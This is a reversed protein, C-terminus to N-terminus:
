TIQIKNKYHKQTHPKQEHLIILVIAKLMNLDGAVAASNALQSLISQGMLLGGRKRVCGSDRIKYGRQKLLRCIRASDLTCDLTQSRAANVYKTILTNVPCEFSVIKKYEM